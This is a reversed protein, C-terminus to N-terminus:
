SEPTFQELPTAEPRNSIPNIAYWSGNKQVALVQKKGSFGKRAGPFQGDSPRAFQTGSADLTWKWQVIAKAPVYVNSGIHFPAGNAIKRLVKVGKPGVRLLEPISELPNFQGRILSAGGKLGAMTFPKGNFPILMKLGKAFNKAGSWGGTALFSLLDIALGKAGAEINGEVLDAIAGVYPILSLVMRANEATFLSSTTFPFTRRHLATPQNAYAILGVRNEDFSYAQLKQVIQATISSTFTDPVRHHTHAPPRELPDGLKEIIVESKVGSRPASGSRYADFDFPLMTGKRYQTNVSAFPGYPKVGKKIEGDLMLTDPLDTREIMKRSNPFVEYYGYKPTAEGTEYRLLVGHVGRSNSVKSDPQSDQALDDGTAQRLSYLQVDKSRELAMRQKLPLETFMLKLATLHAPRAETIYKDVASPVLSKINPLQKLREKFTAMSVDRHIFANDTWSDQKGLLPKDNAQNMLIVDTLRKNARNKREARIAGASFELNPIGDLTLNSIEDKTMEPFLLALQQILISTETPPDNMLIGFAERTQNERETFAKAAAEYDGASYKGDSTAPFVGAMVAWDLLPQVGLEKILAEQNPGAADKRALAMAQTLNLRADGAIACGLRLNMWGTSGVKIFEPDRNLVQATDAPVTPDRQVLMEPASQALFLHAMLASVKADVGRGELHKEVSERVEKLTRGLNEPQYLAYGAVTGRRGPLATDVNFKLATALLQHRDARPLVQGDAVAFLKLSKAIEEALVIAQPSDFFAALQSDPDSHSQFGLTASSFDKFLAMVRVSAGTLTERAKDSLSAQGEGYPTMSAYDGALPAQPLRTELWSVTIRLQGVTQPVDPAYFALAQRADYTRTSYLADGTKKSMKVLQDFDTNMKRASHGEVDDTRSAREIEEDFRQQLSVWDGALNRMQLEGESLRFESMRFESGPLDYGAKKLFAQFTASGLFELFLNRAKKSRQDLAAGPEVIVPQENLNLVNDDPENTFQSRFQEVLRTRVANDQRCEFLEKFQNEWQQRKTQAIKPWGHHKLQKGLVPASKDNHPPTVGYFDLLVDRGMASLSPGPVGPLGLDNPSLVKQLASVQKSVQGWGSGDTISFRQFTEKGDRVVVGTVCDSFVRITQPKLGQASFWAQVSAENIADNYMEVFPAVSSNRPIPLENTKGTNLWQQLKKQLATDATAADAAAPYRLRGKGRNAPVDAGQTATDRRTRGSPEQLKLQRLSTTNFPESRSPRPTVAPAMFAPPEDPAHLPPAPVQPNIPQSLLTVNGKALITSM